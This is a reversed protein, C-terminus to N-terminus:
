RQEQPPPTVAPAAADDIASRRMLYHGLTLPDSFVEAEDHGVSQVAARQGDVRRWVRVLFLEAENMAGGAVWSEHTSPRM